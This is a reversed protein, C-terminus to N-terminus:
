LYEVFVKSGLFKWCKNCVSLRYHPGQLGLAERINHPVEWWFRESISCISCLKHSKGTLHTPATLGFIPHHMGKQVMTKDSHHHLCPHLVNGSARSLWKRSLVQNQKKSVALPEGLKTWGHSMSHWEGFPRWGSPIDGSSLALPMLSHEPISYLSKGNDTVGLPVKFVCGM